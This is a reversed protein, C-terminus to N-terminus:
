VESTQVPSLYEIIEKAYNEWTYDEVTKSVDTELALAKDIYHKILDVSIKDVPYIFGNHGHFIYERANGTDTVVPVIGMHMSEILANPGGGELKACSLFVSCPAYLSPYDEYHPCRFYEVNPNNLVIIPWGPGVIRFKWNPCSSIISNLLPANKRAYHKSSILIRNEKVKKELPKFIARDAGEPIMRILEPKVGNELLHNIGSMNATIIYKCANLRQANIKASPHTFLVVTNNPVSEPVLSYHTYFYSKAPSLLSNYTIMSEKPCRSIVEKAIRDLIWGKNQPAVVAITNLM